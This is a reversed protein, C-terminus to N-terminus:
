RLRNGEDVSLKKDRKRCDPLHYGNPGATISFRRLGGLSCIQTTEPENAFQGKYEKLLEPLRNEFFNFTTVM